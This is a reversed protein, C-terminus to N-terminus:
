KSISKFCFKWYGRRGLRGNQQSTELHLINPLLPDSLRTKERQAAADPLIAITIAANVSAVNVSANNNTFSSVSSLENNNSKNRLTPKHMVFANRPKALIFTAKFTM